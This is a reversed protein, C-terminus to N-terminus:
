ILKGLLVMGALKTNTKNKEIESRFKELDDKILSKTKENEMIQVIIFIAKTNLFAELNVKLLKAIKEIFGLMYKKGEKKTESLSKMIRKITKHGVRDAFLSNSITYASNSLTGPTQCDSTHNPKSSDTKFGM